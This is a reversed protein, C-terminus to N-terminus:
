ITKFQEWERLYFLITEPNVEWHDVKKISCPSKIWHRLGPLNQNANFIFSLGQFNLNTKAVEPKAKLKILLDNQTIIKRDSKQWILIPGVSFWRNVIGLRILDPEGTLLCTVGILKEDLNKIFQGFSSYNKAESIIIILFDLITKSKLSRNYTLGLIYVENEKNKFLIEIDLYKFPKDQIYIKLRSTDFLVNLLDINLTNEWAGDKAIQLLYPKEVIFKSVIISNM